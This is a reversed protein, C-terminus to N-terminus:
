QHSHNRLYPIQIHQICNIRHCNQSACFFLWFFCRCLFYSVKCLLTKWRELKIETKVLFGYQRLLPIPNSYCYFTLTVIDLMLESTALFKNALEDDSVVTFTHSKSVHEHKCVYVCCESLTSLTCHFGCSDDMISHPEYSLDTDIISTLDGELVVERRHDTGASTSAM